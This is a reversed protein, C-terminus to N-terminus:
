RRRLLYLRGLGLAVFLVALLYDVSGGGTFARVLLALGLVVFTVAFVAVAQAYRRRAGGSRRESV